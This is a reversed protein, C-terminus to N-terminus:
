TDNLTFELLFSIWYIFCSFSCLPMQLLNITNKVAEDKAIQKGTWYLATDHMQDLLSQV